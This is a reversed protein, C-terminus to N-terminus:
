GQAAKPAFPHDRIIDAKKSDEPEAIRTNQMAVIEWGTTTKQVVVTPRCHMTIRANTLGYKLTQFMRVVATTPSLMRVGEIAYSIVSDRYITEFVRVHAHQISQRGTGHGGLIHIFDADQAFHSAFKTADSRNWAKQLSSVLEEIELTVASM